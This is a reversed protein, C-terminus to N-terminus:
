ARLIFQFSRKTTIFFQRTFQLVIFHEELNSMKLKNENGYSQACSYQLGIKSNNIFM